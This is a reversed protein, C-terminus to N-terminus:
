VRGEVHLFIVKDWSVVGPCTVTERPSSVMISPRKVYEVLRTTFIGLIPGLFADKVM